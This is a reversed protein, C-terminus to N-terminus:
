WKESFSGRLIHMQEPLADYCAMGLYTAARTTGVYLYRDFLEPKDDALKDVGVFIVAEFELGKIHKIDFVRVDAGEGLAQGEECPVAKLNIDELYKTLLDAMPRVDKEDNVLVAITPMQKVSSEVESIRDAVWCAATDIDIAHELLVPPVGDHISDDPLEGLASRDGGMMSLLSAAFDNLKRSQRYVININKTEIASSV